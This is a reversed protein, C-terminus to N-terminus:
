QTGKGLAANDADQKLTSLRYREAKKELEM